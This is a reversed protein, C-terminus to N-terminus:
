QLRPDARSLSVVMSASRSPRRRFVTEVVVTMEDPVEAAGHSHRRILVAQVSLRAPPCFRGVDQFAKRKRSNDHCCPM